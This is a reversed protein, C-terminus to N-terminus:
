KEVILGEMDQYSMSGVRANVIEGHEDVIITTPFAQVGLWNIFEGTNDVLIKYTLGNKDTFEKIEDLDAGGAEIGIVIIDDRNNSLAEIEPLEAKCPGCWTAWINIFLRKDKFDSLSEYEGDLNVLQFKYISNDYIESQKEVVEVTNDDVVENKIM